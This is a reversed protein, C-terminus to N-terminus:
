IDLQHTKLWRRRLEYDPLIKKVEAWFQPSHNLQKLHCLEHVVVYDLIEIPALVCRWNFNLNRKSSCSGYCSKQEKIRVHGFPEQIIKNYYSIREKYVVTAQNLYWTRFAQRIAQQDYCSYHIQFHDNVLHIEPMMLGNYRFFKLPYEQGLYPMTSDPEYTRVNTDRVHSREIMQQQKKEIWSRKQNIIRKIEKKAVFRPARVCVSGDQNICISMTKRNSYIISYNIGFSEM